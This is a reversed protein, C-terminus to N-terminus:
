ALCKSTQCYCIQNQLIKEPVDKGFIAHIVEYGMAELMMTNADVVGEDDDAILIKKSM